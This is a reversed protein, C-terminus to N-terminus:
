DEEFYHVIGYRLDIWGISYGNRLISLNGVQNKVLKADPERAFVDEAASLLKEPTMHPLVM